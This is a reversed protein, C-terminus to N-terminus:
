SFFVVSGRLEREPVGAVCRATGSTIFCMALERLGDPDCWCLGTNLQGQLHLADHGDRPTGVMPSAGPGDLGHTERPGSGLDLDQM